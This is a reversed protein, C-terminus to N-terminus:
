YVIRFVFSKRFGDKFTDVSIFNGDYSIRPHLDCRLPSNDLESISSFKHLEHMSNQNNSYYYLSPKHNNDYDSYNDTIFDMGIKENCTPHGDEANLKKNKIKMFNKNIFNYYYYGDNTLKKAIINNDKIFFKYVKLVYKFFKQLNQYKRINTVINGVSGYFILKDKNLFNFHSMRGSNTIINITKKEIDYYMLRSFIGGDKIKYRHLFTFKKSCPSFMLHEVYHTANDMNTNKKIKILDKITFLIKQKNTEFDYIKVYEDPVILKNKNEDIIADYSYGRRCWYLREFSLSLFFRGNKSVSYIPLEVTSTTKNIIDFIRSVYKKNDVDNYIIYRNHDPGLWQARCGQQFNLTKTYGIVVKINLKIDFYSIEYKKKANPINYIDNINVTILNQNDKSLQPVDYYGFFYNENNPTEFIKKLKVSM